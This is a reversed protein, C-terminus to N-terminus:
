LPPRLGPIRPGQMRWWLASCPVIDCSPGRVGLSQRGKGLGPQPARPGCTEEGTLSMLSVCGMLQAQTPPVPCPLTQTATPSLGDKCSAQIFALGM